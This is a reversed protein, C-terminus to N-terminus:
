ISHQVSLGPKWVVLILTWDKLYEHVFICIIPQASNYVWDLDKSEFSLISRYPTRILSPNEM